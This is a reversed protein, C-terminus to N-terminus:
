INAHEKIIPFTKKKKKWEFKDNSFRNKKKKLIIIIINKNFIEIHM